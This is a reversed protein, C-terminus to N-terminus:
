PTEKQLAILDVMEALCDNPNLGFRHGAIIEVLEANSLISDRDEVHEGEVLWAAAELIAGDVDLAEVQHNWVQGNDRYIGIVTFKRRRSV